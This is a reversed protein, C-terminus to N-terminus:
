DARLVVTHVAREVVWELHRDSPMRRTLAVWAKLVALYPAFWWAVRCRVTFTRKEPM